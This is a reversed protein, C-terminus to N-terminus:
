VPISKALKQTIDFKGKQYNEIMQDVVDKLLEDTLLKM